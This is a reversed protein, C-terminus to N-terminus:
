PHGPPRGWLTWLMFFSMPLGVVIAMFIGFLERLFIQSTFALAALMAFNGVIVPPVILFVLLLLLERM